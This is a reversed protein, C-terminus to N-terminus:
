VSTRSKTTGWNLQQVGGLLRPVLSDLFEGFSAWTLKTERLDKFTVCWAVTLVPFVLPVENFRPGWTVQFM